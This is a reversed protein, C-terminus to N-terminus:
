LPQRDSSAMPLWTQIKKGAWSNVSAYDVVTIPGTATPVRLAVTANANLPPVVEAPVIGADDIIDIPEAFSEDINEDRALVLPGRQLARYRHSGPTIGGRAQVVRCRMDLTLEVIDGPAWTRDLRAFRGPEADVTEGEVKLLTKESWQPIRLKIAFAQPKALSVLIRVTGDRPFETEIEIQVTAGGPLAIRMTGAEFLNVILGEEDRMVAVWPLYALGEPGNLNCCTVYVGDIETGWGIENTKVGNLLSMYSFGDGEPKMAGILGNYAYREIADAAAPDGTLRLMQHCFKLWTVGTCTEMMRVIGPNTQELATNDWAEGRVNPHYPYDGGGNGILTIERDIAKLFLQSAAALWRENGTVRYYEIVGELLSLMDYAKPYIGGVEVLDMGSLIEDIIRHHRAGGEDEIIYRAFDLYRRFGTLNYLRMFPELITCSEIHNGGVLAYSWGQDVIRKKPPPGVQEITADALDTMAKLVVPDREVCSYYEDLGLLVYKREWLDGSPGDPQSATPSCSITGNAKKTSILDAVTEGLIAKLDPDGTYRYFLSGSRVAKGWMEGTAFLEVSQGDELIKPRGTRFFGALARYPVVGKNWAEISRKIYRELYGQLNVDGSSLVFM